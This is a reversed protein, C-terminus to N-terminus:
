DENALSLLSNLKKVNGSKYEEESQKLAELAKIEDYLNAKQALQEFTEIDVVAAEPKNRHLLVVPEKGEKAAEIVKRYNRQLSASSTLKPIFSM